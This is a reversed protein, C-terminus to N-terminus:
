RDGFNQGLAFFRGLRVLSSKQFQITPPIDVGLERLSDMFLANSQNIPMGIGM